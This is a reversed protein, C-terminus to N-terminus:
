GDSSARPWLHCAKVPISRWADFGSTVKFDGIVGNQVTGIIWVSM